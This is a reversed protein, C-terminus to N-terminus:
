DNITEYPWDIIGGFDYVNTYGMGILENAAIASRRGSRCYVLILTDQDPLESQANDTIEYDPLLVAGEIREEKYEEETRVDLLIYNESSTMLDYAEEATIKRYVAKPIIETVTSPDSPQIKVEGGTSCSCLLIICIIIFFLIKKM